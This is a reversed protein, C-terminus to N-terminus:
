AREVQEIRIGREVPGEDFEIDVTPGSREAPDDVSIVRGVQGQRHTGSTLGQRIKVADGAKFGDM